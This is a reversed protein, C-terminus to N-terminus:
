LVALLNDVIKLRVFGDALVSPTSISFVIAGPSKGSAVCADTADEVLKTGYSVLSDKSPILNNWNGVALTPKM